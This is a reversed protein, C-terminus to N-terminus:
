NPLAVRFMQWQWHVRQTHKHGVPLSPSVSPLFSLHPAGIQKHRKGRTKMAESMVLPELSNEESIKKKQQAVLSVMKVAADLTFPM